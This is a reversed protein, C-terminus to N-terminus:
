ASPCVSCRPHTGPVPAEPDPSLGAKLFKCGTAARLRGVAGQPHECGDTGQRGMTQVVELFEDDEVCKRLRGLM